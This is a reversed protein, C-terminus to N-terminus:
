RSEQQSRSGQMPRPCTSSRLRDALATGIGVMKLWHRPVFARSHRLYHHHITPHPLAFSATPRVHTLTGSLCRTLSSRSPLRCCAVALFPKQGFGVGTQPFSKTKRSSPRLVLCGPGCRRHQLNPVGAWSSILNRFCTRM